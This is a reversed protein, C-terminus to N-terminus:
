HSTKQVLSPMYVTFTSGAGPNSEVSMAGGQNKVIGLAASLGLGRGPSKTSFFPEFAQAATKADMGCGTDRVIMRVYPGPALGGPASRDGEPIAVNATRITIDGSGAIAEGANTVLNSVLQAIQAPDAEIRALSPDLDLALEIEPRLVTDVAVLLTEEIASNLNTPKPQTRGGLAYALLQRALEAAKEAASAVDALLDQADSDHVRDILLAAKGEITTMLQNVNHAVGGALTRAADLRNTALLAQELGRQALRRVTVDRANVVIGQVAPDEMCNNGIVELTRWSEDRARFRLEVLQEEGPRRTLSRSIAERTAEVDEPHAYALLNAGTLSAATWGLVREVSPTIFRILGARDIVVIVDLAHDTLARFWKGRREAEGQAELLDTIDTVIGILGSPKGDAGTILSKRWLGQRVAGDTAKFPRRYSQVRGSVWLERDNREEESALDAPLVAASIQGLISARPRGVMKEFALNCVRYVGRADKLFIPNPLGDAFRQVFVM